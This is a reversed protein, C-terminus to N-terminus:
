NSVVSASKKTCNKTVYQETKKKVRVSNILGELASVTMHEKHMFQVCIYIDHKIDSDM